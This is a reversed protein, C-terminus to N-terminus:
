MRCGSVWDIFVALPKAAMVMLSSIVQIFQMSSVDDGEMQGKMARIEAEYEKWPSLSKLIEGCCMNLGCTWNINYPRDKIKRELEEKDEAERKVKLMDGNSTELESCSWQKSPMPRGGKGSVMEVGLSDRLARDLPLQRASGRDERWLHQQDVTEPCLPWICVWFSWFNNCIWLFNLKPTRIQCIILMARFGWFCTNQVTKTHSFVTSIRFDVTSIRTRIKTRAFCTYFM